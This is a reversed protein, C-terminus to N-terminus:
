EGLTRVLDRLMADFLKGDPDHEVVLALFNVRSNRTKKDGPFIAAFAELRGDVSLTKIAKAEQEAVSKSPGGEKSTSGEKRGAKSEQIIGAAILGDRAAGGGFVQVSKVDKPCEIGNAFALFANRYKHDNPSKARDCAKLFAPYIEADWIEKTAGTAEGGLQRMLTMLPTGINELKAQFDAKLQEVAAANSVIGKGLREGISAFDPKASASAKLLKAGARNLTTAKAM